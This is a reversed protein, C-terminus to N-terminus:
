KKEVSDTGRTKNGVCEILAQRDKAPLDKTCRTKNFKEKGKVRATRCQNFKDKVDGSLTSEICEDYAKKRAAGNGLEASSVQALGAIFALSICSFCFSKISNKMFKIVVIILQSVISISYNRKFRQFVFSLRFPSIM